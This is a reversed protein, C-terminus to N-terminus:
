GFEPHFALSMLGCDDWGQTRASIDLVLTKTSTAQDNQFSYIRGERENVYLRNSRPAQVLSLPGVFTLNPFAPEVFWDGAPAPPAPPLNLYPTTPPTPGPLGYPQACLSSSAVLGVVLVMWSAAGPYCARKAFRSM